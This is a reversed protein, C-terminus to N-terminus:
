RAITFEIRRNRERNRRSNNPVLPKTEGFGVATIRQQDVNNKIMYESVSLARLESLRQNQRLTGVSDTHGAVILNVQACRNVVNIINTLAGVSKPDLRASATKFFIGGSKTLDAFRKACQEDSLPSTDLVAVPKPKPKPEPKPEPKAASYPSSYPTSDPASDPAVAVQEDPVEVPNEVAIEVPVPSPTTDAAPTQTPKAAPKPTAPEAEKSVNEVAKEAVEEGAQAEVSTDFVMNFSVAAMPVISVQASEELQKVGDTLDFQETEISLPAASAVAVQNGALKTVVTQLQLTRKVGHLALEFELPVEIRGKETLTSLVAPDINASVLAQAYKYTEFLLFRLRVNRLDVNTEVSDLQILISASGAEDVTGEFSSFRNSELISGNKITQFTLSSSSSDLTWGNEFPNATSEDAARAVNGFLTLITLLVISASSLNLCRFNLCRVQLIRVQLIRVMVSCRKSVVYMNSIEGVVFSCAFSSLQCSTSHSRVQTVLYGPHQTILVLQCRTCKLSIVSTRKAM